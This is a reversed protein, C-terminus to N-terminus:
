LYPKLIEINEKGFNLLDKALKLIDKDADKEYLITGTSAEMLIANPAASQFGIDTPHKTEKNKTVQRLTSSAFTKVPSFILSFFLSTTLLFTFIYFTKQGLHKSFYKLM